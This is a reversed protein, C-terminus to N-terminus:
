LELQGFSLFLSDLLLNCTIDVLLGYKSQIAVFRQSKIPGSWLEEIIGLFSKVRFCCFGNLGKKWVFCTGLYALEVM